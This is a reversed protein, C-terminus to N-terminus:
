YGAQALRELWTQHFREIPENKIGFTWELARKGSSTNSETTTWDFHDAPITGMYIGFRARDVGVVGDNKKEGADLMVSYPLLLAPDLVNGCGGTACAMAAWSFITPRDTPGPLVYRGGEGKKPLDAGSPVSCREVGTACAWSYDRSANPIPLADHRADGQETSLSGLTKKLGDYGGDDLGFFREAVLKFSPGFTGDDLQRLGWSAFSSGAHPTSLTTLSAIRDRWMTPTGDRDSPACCSVKETKGSADVVDVCALAKCEENYQPSSVLVRADLGGMSHAVVNIRMREGNPLPSGEEMSRIFAGLKQRLRDARIEVPEFGPVSAATAHDRFGQVQGLFGLVSKWTDSNSNFGHAFYVPYKTMHVRDVPTPMCNESCTVELSYTSPESPDIFLPKYSEAVADIVQSPLPRVCKDAICSEGTNCPVAPPKACARAKDNAIVPVRCADGVCGKDDVLAISAGRYADPVSANAAIKEPLVQVLIPEPSKGVKAAQQVLRRTLVEKANPRPELLLVNDPTITGVRASSEDSAGGVYLEHSSFSKIKAVVDRNSPGGHLSLTAGAAVKGPDPGIVQYSAGADSTATWGSDGLTLKLDVPADSGPMTVTVVNGPYRAPFVSKDHPGVVVVYRGPELTDAKIEAQGHSDTLLTKAKPFAGDSLAPGYLRVEAIQSMKRDEVQLRFGLRGGPYVTLPYVHWKKVRHSFPQREFRALDGSEQGFVIRQRVVYDPDAGFGSQRALLDSEPEESPDPDSDAPASCATTAALALLLASALHGPRIM